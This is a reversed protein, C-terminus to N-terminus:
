KVRNDIVGARLINFGCRRYFSELEEVFIVQIFQIGDATLDHIARAVLAQGIGQGQFEPHVILDVLFADGIGESIVNLFGILGKDDDSVSYHTYSRALIRDYKGEQRDWGVAARLAEVQGGSIPAQKIITFNM